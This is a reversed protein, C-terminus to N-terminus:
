NSRMKLDLHDYLLVISLSAFFVSKVTSPMPLCELDHPLNWTVRFM